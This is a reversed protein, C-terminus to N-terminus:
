GVAEPGALSAAPSGNELGAIRSKDLVAILGDQRELVATFFRSQAGGLNPPPPRRAQVDDAVVDDVEDVLLGVLEGGQEVIIAPPMGVSEERLPLGLRHRVDVLTVVQGRMNVLGRVYPPARHVAAIGAVRKIEQIQGIDLGCRVEGVRFVVLDRGSEAEHTEM